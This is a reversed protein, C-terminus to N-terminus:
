FPWLNQWWSKEETNTTSTSAKTAGTGATGPKGPGASTPMPGKGPAPPIYRAQTILMQVELVPEVMLLNRNSIKISNHNMYHDALRIKDLFTYLNKTTTNFSVGATHMELLSDETRKPWMSIEHIQFVGADLLLKTVQCGLRIQQLWTIVDEKTVTRGTLQDMSPSGFYARVVAPLECPPNRMAAAQYIQGILKNSETEYYFRLIAGEPPPDADYVDKINFYASRETLADKWPIVAGSWMAVVAEPKTTNFLKGVRTLRGDLEEYKSRNEAYTALRDKFYFQYVAGTVAALVVFIAFTAIYQRNM